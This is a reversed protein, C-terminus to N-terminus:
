LLIIRFVGFNMGKIRETEERKKIRSNKMKKFVYLPATGVIGVEFSRRSEGRRIGSRGIRTQEL